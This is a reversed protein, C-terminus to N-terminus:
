TNRTLLAVLAHSPSQIRIAHLEIPLLATRGGAGWRVRHGRKRGGKEVGTNREEQASRWPRGDMPDVM